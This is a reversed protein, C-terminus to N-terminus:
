RSLLYLSVALLVTVLTVTVVGMVLRETAEDFASTAPAECRWTTAGSNSSSSSSAVLDNATACTCGFGNVFSPSYHVTHNSASNEAHLLRVITAVGAADPQQSDVSVNTVLHPCMVGNSDPPNSASAPNVLLWAPLQCSNHTLTSISGTHQCISLSTDQM